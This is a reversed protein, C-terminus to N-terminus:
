KHSSDKVRGVILGGDLFLALHDGSDELATQWKSRKVIGAERDPLALLSTHM